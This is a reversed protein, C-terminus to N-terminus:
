VIALYEKFEEIGLFSGVEYFRQKVELAAFQRQKLLQQYLIELDFPIDSPISDFATKAFVGLGYDIHQMQPTKHKKDYCVIEGALFEVNSKDWQSQNNFVTMLAMKQSQLFKEQAARYDCLLYSDGYLVFFYKEDIKPLAKKIAGATGLLPNGDFSYAVQMGLQNGNGLVDVIQEGLYAVCMVVKRIGQEYLSKLQHVVFPEGNIDVLAKPIVETLPRLRTALGGALIVAPFLENKM